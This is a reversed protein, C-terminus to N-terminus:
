RKRRPADLARVLAAPAKARWARELRVKCEASTLKGLRALVAPYGRYHDTIFYVDPDTEVLADQEDVSDLMFVVTEADEKLRVFGKDRVMLAPTRYWVGM